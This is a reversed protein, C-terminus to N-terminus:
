AKASAGITHQTSAVSYTEHQVGLGLGQQVQHLLAAHGGGIFQRGDLGTLSVAVPPEIGLRVWGCHATHQVQTGVARVARDGQATVAWGAAINFGHQRCQDVEMAAAPHNAVQVGMVHKAAFQAVQASARDERHVVAHARLVPERRGNVVGNRGGV